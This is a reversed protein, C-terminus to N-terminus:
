QLRRKRVVRFLFFAILLGTLGMFLPEFIDAYKSYFTTRNLSFDLSGTLQANVWIPLKAQVRGFPDVIATVGTNGARVMWVGNEITRFVSGAFHQYHGRYLDTWGDNTTNVFFDINNKLYQRCHKYFIGEYCILVGFRHGNISFITKDEGPVFTSGGYTEILKQVLEGVVPLGRYPFWEGFPVLIMKAYEQTVNGRRDVMVASNQPLWRLPNITDQVRGIQSLLIPTNNFSAFTLLETTFENFRGLHYDYYLSELSSSESWIILDSGEQVGLKSLRLQERLFTM